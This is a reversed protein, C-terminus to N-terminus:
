RSTVLSTELERRRTEYEEKDIEGEPLYFKLGNRDAPIHSGTVMISPANRAMAYYALAPTPVAGCDAPTFGCGRIAALVQATIKPSSERLDRAVFIAEGDRSHGAQLCYDCFARTYAAAAGGLLVDAKGRLGSTGFKVDMRNTAKADFPGQELKQRAVIASQQPM